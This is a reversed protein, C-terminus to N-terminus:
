SSEKALRYKYAFLPDTLAVTAIQVANAGAELFKDVDSVEIIGGGGLIEYKLDEEQRIEGAWKISELAIDQLLKGCVGSTKRGPLIESGDKAVVPNAIANIGSVYDLNDAAALFVQKMQDKSKYLGFKFGVPTNPFRRKFEALLYSVLEPSQFMEGEEINETVNPCALNFEVFDVGNSVAVAAGVLMDSAAEIIRTIPTDPGICISCGSVGPITATISCGLLQGDGASEKQRVLEPGWIDMSPSPNGFSNTISQHKKFDDPDMSATLPKGIDSRKLQGNSHIIAINPAINSPRTSTRRTKEIVAGYGMKFYFDTWFHGSAPGASIIIPSILNQGLFKYLQPRPPFKNSKWIPPHSVVEEWSRSIDYIFPPQTAHNLEKPDPNKM